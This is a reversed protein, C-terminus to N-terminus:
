APEHCRLCCNGGTGFTSEYRLLWKGGAHEEEATIRGIAFGERKCVARIAEEVKPREEQMSQLEPSGVYNLDLDISLRPLDALFLNVATGDKLVLRGKLFPHHFLAKLLQLLLMAKELIEPRFGTAEAVSLASERSIRM